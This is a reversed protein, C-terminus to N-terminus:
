IMREIYEYIKDRKCIELIEFHVLVKMVRKYINVDLVLLQVRQEGVPRRRFEDYMDRLIQMLGENSGINEELCGDPHFRDLNDGHQRIRYALHVNMSEKFVPKVPITNVRERISISNKYFNHRESACQSMFDDVVKAIHDPSFLDSTTCGGDMESALPPPPCIIDADM